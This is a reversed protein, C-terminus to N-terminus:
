FPNMLRLIKEPQISEMENEKKSWYGSWRMSLIIIKKWQLRIYNMHWISQRKRNMIQRGSLIETLEHFKELINGELGSLLLTISKM